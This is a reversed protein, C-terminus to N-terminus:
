RGVRLRRRAIRGLRGASPLGTGTCTTRCGSACSSTARARPGTAGPRRCRPWAGAPSRPRSRSSSRSSSAPRSEITVSDLFRRSYLKFNNTPDHTPVGGFWHLTLGAIRSLLRKLLPGGVQHGGRMYRSASVVDAGDRALAVMPDVVHPEDSGDAMSILVYTAADVRRHGAKMANLVGRGLDNRYGASRRCSPPSGSSSRSPRTRTSTTSSSSRTRRRRDGRDLARLVPSSRRARRSSRSSSRRARARRARAADCGAPRWSPRPDVPHGRRADADLSRRRRSASCRARRASTPSACSSTTSSRRTASVYRFPEATATSRTGSRRPWSWCPRRRPPRCTSTRTSPRRRSWRWGSAAPSTAATPTTGSRRARRGPHAAPGPGQAGQARPGPRRPEPGAQRQREHRGHRPRARREGIGVCNFPRVITYPLQYQEWAGKRSTSRRWSRSATPRSRRRALDAPRGRADPLDTASEYVMSSSVARRDARPARAKHAAIAADFTSALIRENEALLDYAFEHFYSIGGIM